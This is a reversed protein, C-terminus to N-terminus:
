GQFLSLLVLLPNSTYSKEKQLKPALHLPHDFGRQPRKEGQFSVTDMTYSAPHAGPGIQIPASFRAVAPIRDWFQGARLLDSYRCMCVSLPFLAFSHPKAWYSRINTTVVYAFLSPYTVFSFPNFTRREDSLIVFRRFVPILFLSVFGQLQSVRFM